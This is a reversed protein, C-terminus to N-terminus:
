FAGYNVQFCTLGMDRWLKVVQDRDDLCFVIRYKDRIHQDFLETKVVYDKRHDGTKRMYLGDYPPAVFTTLWEKTADKCSDDRGSLFIIKYGFRVMAWLTVQVAGNVNDTGLKAYDFPGRGNHIALTGDLDCIVAWPLSVDDNAYPRVPEGSALALYKDYMDRIVKEGVRAPGERAADRRICETLGVRKTFDEIEFTAGCNKAINRLVREHTPAFNTDDSIVSEGSKLVQSILNNRTEIIRREVEKSWPLGLHARLTDKNVTVFGHKAQDRAWTSKGSAPLGKCMILKAM